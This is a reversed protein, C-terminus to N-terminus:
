RPTGVIHRADRALPDEASRGRIDLYARFSDAFRANGLARRVRGQYYYVTPFYGFTPEEDLFLALAEGRRKICRDFESDAQTFANARLFALGLDFHGIWTDLMTNAEGLLTIAQRADGNRLAIEANVIKAYAQPEIQLESALGAALARARQVLGAEAFVRAAMFRVKSASGNALARDAAHVAAAKQQRLLHANALAALKSAARDRDGAAFDAAAGESFIRAADAYRGEFVAIDGLGSAEYSAGLADIAGIAHYSVAADALRGQGLEAFARALLAFQSPNSIVRAEREAAAFDGSYDAYLALNERYLARKPLIRVVQRMEDVARPMDRLYTLCLALNNRASADAAYRSILDSFEKVCQQADGTIMYFLGRTRYRERETMGDLHSVARKIFTEADQQRDLNRSAIAMGAYALGFQPDKKAADAFHGLAEDFRSNSMAQAGAAYDRVVELSTASLTEMAFRQATDSTDDGLAKRVSAALRTAVGLVQEKAATRDATSAIVTGTVAETAKMSVGYTGDQRSVSGAVVIRLGQRVALEQAAREDLTQPPRVGLSRSIGSRDYASIFGASELAIKLMPELTGDFAPDGSANQFDAIVVSVPDHEITSAAPRRAILYTGSVLSAVLVLGAVLMRRTIRAPEPVLEGRDDLKALAACMDTTSQFRRDPDRELCCMVFADLAPPVDPELSRVAPLGEVARRMMAAVREYPTTFKLARPGTVMEYLILGFAYIDARADSARGVGQEPAMYELTGVIGRPGTDETSASIGFDVILAHEGSGIMINAPKLDRHLVGSEHAADLGAAIQRAFRMAAGVGLKGDRRLMTALDVGEVYSMTIYKTGDIEGLDHIRVVHKHTVSRALLLENKFRKELDAGRRGSRDARIVKLAVAVGLEADWAQYVEGMGGMGLLKMIRYRPGFSQGVRLPGSRSSSKEATRAVTLTRQIGGVGFGVAAPLGTTDLALVGTLVADDVSIARCEPCM